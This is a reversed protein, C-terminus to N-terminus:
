YTVCLADIDFHTKGIGSLKLLKGYLYWCNTFYFKKKGKFSNCDFITCVILIVHVSEEVLSDMVICLMNGYLLVNLCMNQGYKGTFKYVPLLTRPGDIFTYTCNCISIEVNKRADFLQSDRSESENLCWILFEVITITINTKKKKEKGFQGRDNNHRTYQRM